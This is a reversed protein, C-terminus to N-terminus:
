YDPLRKLVATRVPDLWVKNLQEASALLLAEPSAALLDIWEQLFRWMLAHDWLEDWTDEDWELQRSEKLSSRYRDVIEKESIPMEGFWWLSNKIFVLLDLIGPGIATLQWDFVVHSGDELISINGPWYDGHLLTRKVNRLPAAIETAHTILTRLLQMQEPESALSEPERRYSIKEISQSAATLHVEFDATLPRSLWPFAELDEGLNWFRDHLNVLADISAIYDDQTWVSADRAPPVSELILWDLWDGAPSAAVLLPMIM